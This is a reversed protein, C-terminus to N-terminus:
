KTSLSKAARKQQGRKAAIREIEYVIRDVGRDKRGTM